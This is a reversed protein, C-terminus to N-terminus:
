GDTDSGNSGALGLPPPVSGDSQNAALHRLAERHQAACYPCKNLHDLVKPLIRTDGRTLVEAYYEMLAFCEDCTLSSPEELMLQWLPRIM